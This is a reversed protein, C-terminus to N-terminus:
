ERRLMGRGGGKESSGVHLGGPGLKEPIDMGGRPEEPCKESTRGQSSSSLHRLVSMKGGAYAEEGHAQSQETDNSLVAPGSLVSSNHLISAQLAPREACRM